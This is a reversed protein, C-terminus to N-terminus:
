RRGYRHDGLTETYPLWAPDIPIGAEGCREPADRATEKTFGHRSPEHRPSVACGDRNRISQTLLVPRRQYRVDQDVPGANNASREKRSSM